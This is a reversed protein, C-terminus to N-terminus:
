SPHYAGHSVESARSTFTRRPCRQPERAVPPPAASLKATRDSPPSGHGNGLRQNGFEVFLHRRGAPRELADGVALRGHPGLRLAVHIAVHQVVEHMMSALERDVQPYVVHRHRRDVPGGGVFLPEPGLTRVQSRVTEFPRRARPSSLMRLLSSANATSAVSM